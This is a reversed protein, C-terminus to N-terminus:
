VTTRDRVITKKIIKPYWEEFLALIHYFIVVMPKSNKLEHISIIKPLIKKEKKKAPATTDQKITRFPIKDNKDGMYYYIESVISKDAQLTEEQWDELNHSGHCPGPFAVSAIALQSPLQGEECLLILFIFYNYLM